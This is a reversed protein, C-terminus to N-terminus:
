RGTSNQFGLLQCNYTKAIVYMPCCKHVKNVCPKIIFSNVIAPPEANTVRVDDPTSFLVGSSEDKAARGGTAGGSVELTKGGGDDEPTLGGPRM